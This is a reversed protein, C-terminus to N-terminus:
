VAAPEEMRDLVKSLEVAVAVAVQAMPGAVMALVMAALAVTELIDV